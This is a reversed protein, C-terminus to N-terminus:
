NFLIGIIESKNQLKDGKHYNQVDLIKKGKVIDFLFFRLYRVNTASDKLRM